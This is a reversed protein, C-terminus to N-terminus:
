RRRLPIAAQRSSRAVPFQKSTSAVPSKSRSAQLRAITRELPAPSSHRTETSHVAGSPHAQGALSAGDFHRDVQWCNPSHRESLSQGAPRLHWWCIQSVVVNAGPLLHSTSALQVEPRQTRPM